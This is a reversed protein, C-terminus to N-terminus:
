GVRSFNPDVSFGNMCAVALKRPVAAGGDDAQVIRRDLGQTVYHSHFEGPVQLLPISSASTFSMMIAPAPLINQPPTSMLAILIGAALQPTDSMWFGFGPFRGLPRPIYGGHNLVDLRTGLRAQARDHILDIDSGLRHDGRDAATPQVKTQFKGKAAV